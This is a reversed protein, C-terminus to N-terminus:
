QRMRKCLSIVSKADDEIVNIVESTNLFGSVRQNGGAVRKLIDAHSEISRAYNKMWRVGEDTVEDAVMVSDHVQNNWKDFTLGEREIIKKTEESVEGYTKIDYDVWEQAKRIKEEVSEDSMKSDKILKGSSEYERIFAEAESKSFKTASEREVFWYQSTSKKVFKSGVQILYRGEDMASLKMADKVAKAKHVAEIESDAAVILDISDNLSVKYKM